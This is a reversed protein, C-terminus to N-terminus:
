PEEIVSAVVTASKIQCQLIYEAVLMPDKTFKVPLRGCDGARSETNHRGADSLICM